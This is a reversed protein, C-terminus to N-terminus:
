DRWQRQRPRIRVIFTLETQMEHPRPLWRPRSRSIVYPIALPRSAGEAYWKKLATSTQSMIQKRLDLPLPQQAGRLIEVQAKAAKYCEHVTLSQSRERMDGWGAREEDGHRIAEVFAHPYHDQKIGRRQLRDYFDGDEGGWGRFAEDYGGAAAFDTRACIVTGFTELDRVGDKLGARYFSGPKLNERMWALWGTEVLVDGDIFVLWDAQTAQGGMNRARAICFEPDDTVRVLQIMPYNAEAWDGAKDPCGYDVLIVEDPNQALIRPLTQRIHHLRGKCTMVFAITSM